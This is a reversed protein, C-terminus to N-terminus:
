NNSRMEETNTYTSSAEWPEQGADEGGEGVPWTRRYMVLSSNRTRVATSIPMFFWSITLVSSMQRIAPRLFPPPIRQM